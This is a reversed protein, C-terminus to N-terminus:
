EAAARYQMPHAPRPLGLHDRLTEGEYDSRFLGRKQLIPIVQQTFAELPRGIWPTFLVFGDCAGMRLWRELDDAVMEPTGFLLRHGSAAAAYDRIQRLNFNNKKAVATLTKAHGRMEEWPIEPVPGEPDLHTVPVGLRSTLKAWAAEPEIFEALRWLMEKAEAESDAVFPCVGPIILVHQPNRGSKAALDRIRAGFAKTTDPDEQVTFIVEGLEAAFPIGTESAGAQLIVPYGQPPRSSNLPGKVSYFRGKHDLVHRKSGDTHIGTAKNAIAAGDEWSDWLGKCIEVFEAAREYRELKPAHEAEGFNAAAFPSSTTVVNWGVRGNSIHDLSSLMRAVNYPESYTTSVTAGLGIRETVSALAALEVMAELRRTDGPGAMSSPSDAVFVMDFKAREAMLTSRKLLQFDEPGYDAEPLRWGGIHSGSGSLMLAFHM